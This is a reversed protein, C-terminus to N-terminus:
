LGTIMDLYSLEEKAYHKAMVDFLVTLTNRSIVM